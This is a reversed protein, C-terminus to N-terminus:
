TENEIDFALLIKSDIYDLIRKDFVNKQISIRIAENLAECEKPFKQEYRFRQTGSRTGKKLIIKSKGVINYILYITVDNELGFLRTNHTLKKLLEEPKIYYSKSINYINGILSMHSLNIKFKEEGIIFTDNSYKFYQGLTIIEQKIPIKYLILEKVFDDFRM